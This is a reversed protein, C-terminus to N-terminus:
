LKCIQADIPIIKPRYGAILADLSFGISEM